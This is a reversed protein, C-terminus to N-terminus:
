KPESILVFFSAVLIYRGLSPNEQSEEMKPGFFLEQFILNARTKMQFPILMM